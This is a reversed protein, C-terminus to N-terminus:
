APVVQYNKFALFVYSNSVNSAPIVPVGGGRAGAAVNGGVANPDGGGGVNPYPIVSPKPDQLSGLQQTLNSTKQERLDKADIGNNGKAIPDINTQNKEAEIKGKLEEIRGGKDKEFEALAKEYERTGSGGIKFDERQPRNFEIENLLDQNSIPTMQAPMIGEGEGSELDKQIENLKETGIVDEVKSRAGYGGQWFIMSTIVGTLAKFWPPGPIKSGLKGGAASSAWAAGQDMVEYMFPKGELVNKVGFMSTVFVSVKNLKSGKNQFQKSGIPTSGKNGPINTPKNGLSPVNGGTGVPPKMGKANRAVGFIANKLKDLPRILIGGLAVSGLAMALKGIGITLAGMGATVLAVTGGIVLLGKILDNRIKVFKEQNGSSLAKLMNVTKELLWGGALIFFVNVLKGLGFQVKKGIKKIPAMLSERIKSEISQENADALGQSILRRQRQANAAERQRDLNAGVALTQAIIGLSRNLEVTQQSVNGVQSAIGGLLASNRVTANTAVSDQRQRVVGGGTFISNSVTNRVARIGGGIPSRIPEAM